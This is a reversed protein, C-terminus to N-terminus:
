FSYRLGFRVARPSLNENIVNFTSSRVNNQRLVVMNSNTVNFVDVSGTLRGYAGIEFTKRLNLDLTFINEYRFTDMPAVLILHTGTGYFANLGGGALASDSVSTFLPRPAGQQYRM